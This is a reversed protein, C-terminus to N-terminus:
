RVRIPVNGTAAAGRGDRVTVFVRYNGPPLGEIWVGEGDGHRIAASRDPPMPEADGAKGLVTAEALVRWEFDLRDGDPDDAAVGLQVPEGARRTADGVLRLSAIRPAKNGAPTRGGWAAAMSELQETWEGTSLFLGHWTPTVEQKQGWHFVVQGVIGSTASETLYRRLLTAKESSTLEIPAGWPTRGAQWQGLVGLETVVLPGTWGQARVRAPLTAIAGAYSNVGLVDISPALERIKRPKDDGVEQLVAMTPHEPDTEKVMRAVEEIAPWVQSSDELEAEVENGIGWMLLAPHSRYRAVDARLRKLQATVAARDGYDFGRRPHEVWLGAIVKLGFRQAEDLIPGPDGGYTRVTNAGLAKLEALRGEGAAGRIFFPAGDVIINGDSVGVAAVSPLATLM